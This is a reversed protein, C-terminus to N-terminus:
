WCHGLKMIGRSAFVPPPCHASVRAHESVDHISLHALQRFDHVFQMTNPFLVPSFRLM